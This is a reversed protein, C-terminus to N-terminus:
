PCYLQRWLAFTLLAGILRSENARGAMHDDVLRRVRAMDFFDDLLDGHCLLTSAFLRNKTRLWHNFFIANYPKDGFPQPRLFAIHRAIRRNARQVLMSVPDQASVSATYGVSAVEPFHRTIMKQYLNGGLQLSTPLRFAFDVLDNDFFPEIVLADESLVNGTSHQYIQRYHLYDYRAFPDDTKADCLTQRMINRSVDQGEKAVAPKLLRAAAPFFWHYNCLRSLAQEPNTIGQESLWIRGTIPEAGVGTMVAPIQNELLFRSEELIWSAHVNMCGETRQVCEAAHEELYYPNAPIMAHSLGAAHAIASGFRVDFADEHGITNAMFRHSGNHGAITGALLRSDLGGTILLCVQNGEPVASLYRATAARVRKAMEDIADDEKIVPLSTQYLPPDWYRSVDLQGEQFTLVSAPPLAYIDKFLTHESLMQGSAVLDFLAAPNIAREFAPLASIAKIESAFALSGNGANWFYFPQVGNRDTVIVLQRTLNDWVVVAYAGNLSTLSASGARIYLSLLCDALGSVHDGEMEAKVQNLWVPDQIITGVLGLIRGDKQAIRGALESGTVALGAQKEVRQCLDIRSSRQMAGAMQKIVSNISEPAGSSVYGAIGPM